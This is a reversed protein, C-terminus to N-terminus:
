GVRPKEEEGWWDGSEEDEGSSVAVESVAEGSASDAPLEDGESEEVAPDTMFGEKPYLKFSPTPAGKPGDKEEEMKQKYSIPDTQTKLIPDDAKKITGLNLLSSIVLGAGILIIARKM